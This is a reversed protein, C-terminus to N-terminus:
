AVRAGDHHWEPHTSWWDRWPAAQDWALRAMARYPRAVADTVVEAGSFGGKTTYHCLMVRRDDLVYWDPMSPEPPTVTELIRIEEGARANRDFYRNFMFLEYDTPVRGAILHVKQWTRGAGADAGLVGPWGVTLDEEDTSPVSSGNLYDRYDDGDSAVDYVPQLEVRLLPGDRAQLLDFLQAEDMM